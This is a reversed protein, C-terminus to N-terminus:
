LGGLQGLDRKGKLATERPFRGLLDRFWGFDRGFNQTTMRSSMKNVERALMKSAVSINIFM